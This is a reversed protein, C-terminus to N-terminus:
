TVWVRPGGSQVGEMELLARKMGLGGGFGGLRGDSAIVRHCPIVLAIPNRAMAQGAARAGKSSGARAALWRYSRVQGYPIARAALLARRRFQPQGSLDVPYRGFGVRKGAFYRELDKALAALLEDAPGVEGGCEQLAEKRTPVPLSLAILRGHRAAAGIWGMPTAVAIAAV